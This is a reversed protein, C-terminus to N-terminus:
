EKVRSPAVKRHLVAGIPVTVLLFVNVLESGGALTFGRPGAIVLGCALAVAISVGVARMTSTHRQSRSEWLRVIALWLAGCVLTLVPFVFVAAFLVFDGRGLVKGILLVYGISGVFGVLPFLLLALVTRM